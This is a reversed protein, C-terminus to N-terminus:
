PALNSSNSLSDIRSQRGQNLWIVHRSAPYNAGLSVVATQFEDAETGLVDEVVGVPIDPPFVGDFGTTMVTDGPLVLQAWPIDKVLATRVEGDRAVLRGAQGRQGMRVSWQAKPHALSLVLSEHATTDVIKGAAFGLSLIGSGPMAGDRGGCGLVMWPSGNWGPTRLVRASSAKWPERSRAKLSELESRLRANELMVLRNSEALHTWDQVNGAADLWSGSAHLSWKSLATRQHSYTSNMWGLALGWILLFLLWRHTRALLAFLNRM